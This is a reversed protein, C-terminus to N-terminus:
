IFHGGGEGAGRVDSDHLSKLYFHISMYYFMEAQRKQMYKVENRYVFTLYGLLIDNEM